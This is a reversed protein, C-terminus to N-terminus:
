VNIEKILSKIEEISKQIQEIHVKLIDVQSLEDQLGEISLEMKDIRTVRIWASAFIMAISALGIDTGIIWAVTELM